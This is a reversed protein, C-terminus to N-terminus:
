RVEEMTRTVIITGAECAATAVAPHGPLTEVRAFAADFAGLSGSGCVTTVDRRLAGLPDGDANLFGSAIETRGAATELTVLHFEDVIHM